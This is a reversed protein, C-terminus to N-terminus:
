RISEPERLTPRNPRIVEREVFSLARDLYERGGVFYTDNHDAGIIEYFEKPAPAADFLKKGLKFPIISDQDGHMVLIPITLRRIKDISNFKSRILFQAPLIPYLIRAMERASTFTSELILAAAPRQTAVDVAVAGGLSTGWLVIRKPDVGPLSVAYDFAARGDKYVGEEGPSGESKGYGRYDYMLVHFGTRQLRVMIDSRHSINGANGHSIVLTARASEAPAFWAHLRVGDETTIWCEQLGPIRQADGYYGEPYKSPFYIFKDEFIMLIVTWVAIASVLAVLVRRFLTLIRLRAPNM